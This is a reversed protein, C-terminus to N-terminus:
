YIIEPTFEIMLCMEYNKGGTFVGSFPTIGDVNKLQFNYQNDIRKSTNYEYEIPSTLTPFHTTARSDYTGTSVIGLINNEVLDSTILCGSNINTFYSSFTLDDQFLMQTIKIQKVPFPVSIYSSATWSSDLFKLYVPKSQCQLNM